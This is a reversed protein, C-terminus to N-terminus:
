GRAGFLDTGVRVMTSGELVAAELDGSMGMSLTEMEIGYKQNCRQLLERTQAFPQRQEETGQRARPLVMFGRLNLRKLESVQGVLDLVDSIPVGGKTTENDIDVQILVNLNAEHTRQKSLRRAIKLRDVSHVWDFEAAISATKNSQILGIYHWDVDNPRIAQKVAIAEQLYNQGIHRLGVDLFSQVSAVSQQKAAGILRIDAPSRNANEAAKQIRATVAAFRQQAYEKDCM